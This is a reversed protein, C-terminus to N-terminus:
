GNLKMAAEAGSMGVAVGMKEGEPTVAKVPNALVEDFNSGGVVAAADGFKEAAAQNLYGCMIYGKKCLLVLMNPHGEGGPAKICIGQITQGNVDLMEVQIM